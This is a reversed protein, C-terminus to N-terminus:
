VMQPDPIRERVGGRGQGRLSERNSGCQKLPRPIRGQGQGQGGIGLSEAM